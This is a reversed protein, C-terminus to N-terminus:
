SSVIILRFLTSTPSPNDFFNDLITHPWQHVVWKVKLKLWIVEKNRKRDKRERRSFNNKMSNWEPDTRGCPWTSSTPSRSRATGRAMRTPPCRPPVRRSLGVRLDVQVLLFSFFTFFSFTKRNPENFYKNNITPRMQHSKKSVTSSEILWWSKGLLYKM